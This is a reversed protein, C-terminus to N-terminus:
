GGLVATGNKQLSELIAKPDADPLGQLKTDFDKMVPDMGVATVPGQAYELGDVFAKDEPAQTAYEAQASKLSPMVGLASAMTLQTDKALLQEVFAQAQAQNKSKAAIGWCQTFALTGKGAPGAPLGVVKYKV